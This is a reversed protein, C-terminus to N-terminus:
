PIMSKTFIYLDISGANLQDLNDGQATVRMRVDVDSAIDEMTDPAEINFITDSPAQFVDFTEVSYKGEDGVIGLEITVATIGGGAWADEHKLMFEVLKRGAKLTFVSIDKQTSGDSFDGFAKSIKEGGTVQYHTAKESTLGGGPVSVDHLDDPQLEGAADYQSLKENAM